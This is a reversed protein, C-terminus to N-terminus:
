RKFTSQQFSFPMRIAHVNEAGMADCALKCVVASDVGGSSALVVQSFGQSKCM